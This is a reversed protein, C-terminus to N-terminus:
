AVEAVKGATEAADGIQKRNLLILGVGVAAAGLVGIGLRKWWSASALDSLIHGAPVLVSDIPSLASKVTGTVIGQPGTLPGVGPTVAGSGLYGGPGKVQLSAYHSPNALVLPLANTAQQGTWHPAAAIVAIIQAPDSLGASLARDIGAYAPTGQVTTVSAQLGTAINSYNKVGSTNNALVTSAGPVNLTTALPNWAAATNEGAMWALVALVNPWTVPWGGLGLFDVAWQERSISTVGGAPLSPAPLGSPYNVKGPGAM